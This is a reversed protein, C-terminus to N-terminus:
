YVISMGQKDVEVFSGCTGEYKNSIYVKVGQVGKPSLVMHKMQMASVYLSSVHMRGRESYQNMYLELEVKFVLEARFM